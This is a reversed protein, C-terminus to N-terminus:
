FRLNSDGIEVVTTAITTMKLQDVHILKVQYTGPRSYEYLAKDSTVIDQIGNGYDIILQDFHQDTPLNFVLPSNMMSAGKYPLRQVAALDTPQNGNHQELYLTQDQSYQSKGTDILYICGVMGITIMVGLLWIDSKLRGTLADFHSLPNYSTSSSLTGKM